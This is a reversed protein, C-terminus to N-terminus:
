LYKRMGLIWEEDKEWTNMEGEYTPAKIKEFEGQLNDDNMQKKICPSLSNDSSLSHYERETPEPTHEEKGEEKPISAWKHYFYRKYKNTSHTPKGHPSGGKM